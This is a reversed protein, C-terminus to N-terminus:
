IEIHYLINYYIVTIITIIVYYLIDYLITYYLILRPHAPLGWSADATLRPREDTYSVPDFCRARKQPVLDVAAVGDIM